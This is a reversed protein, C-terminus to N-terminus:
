PSLLNYLFFLWDHIEVQRLQSYSEGMICISSHSRVNDKLGSPPCLPVPHSTLFYYGLSFFWFLLLLINNLSTTIVLDCLDIVQLIDFHVCLTSTISVTSFLSATSKRLLVGLHYHNWHFIPLPVSTHLHLNGLLWM